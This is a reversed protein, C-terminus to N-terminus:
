LIRGVAESKPGWSVEVPFAAKALPELEDHRLAEAVAAPDNKSAIAVLVGAGALAALMQQYLGHMQAKRDLDWAIGSPGVEGVPGKWVTHDLDTILGKKPAPPLALRALLEALADAHGMRYPFGAALESALDLRQDPPSSRDLRQSNIVRVRGGRAMRAATRLVLARRELDFEGSQHGPLYSAPPGSARPWRRPPEGRPPTPPARGPPPRRPSAPRTAPRGAGGRASASGRTSTRGNSPRSSRRWARRTSGSWAASATAMCARRSSWRAARRSGKCAPGSPHSCICPRDVGGGCVGWGGGRRGGGGAWGRAR